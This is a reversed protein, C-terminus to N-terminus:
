LLIRLLCKKLQRMLIIILDLNRYKQRFNEASDINNKFISLGGKRISLLYENIFEEATLYKVKKEPNLEIIKNGIAQALHTKGLGSGGFLLIPNYIPKDELTTLCVNYALNSTSGVIFNELRLSTSLNTKQEEEDKPISINKYEPNEKLLEAILYLRRDTQTM